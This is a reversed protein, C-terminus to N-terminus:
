CCLKSHTTRSFLSFKGAPPTVPYHTAGMAPSVGERRYIMELFHHQQAPNLKSYRDFLDAVALGSQPGFHSDDYMTANPHSPRPPASPNHYSAARGRSAVTGLPMQPLAPLSPMTNMGPPFQPIPELHHHTAESHNFATGFGQESGGYVNDGRELGSLWMEDFTENYYQPVSPTPQSSPPWSPMPASTTEPIIGPSRSAQRSHTISLSPPYDDLESSSSPSGQSDTKLIQDLLALKQKRKERYARSAIRNQEKRAESNRSKPTKIKTNVSSEQSKNM